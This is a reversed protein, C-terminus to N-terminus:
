RAGRGQRAGSRTASGPPRAPGVGVPGPRAYRGTRATGSARRAGPPRRRRRRAWGPPWAACAGAAGARGPGRSRGPRAGPRRARPRRDARGAAGVRQLREDRLQPAGQTGQAVGQGRAGTAVPEVDGVLLDVGPAELRRGRAPALREGGAVDVAAASASDRRARGQPAPRGEVSGVVLADSRRSASGARPAGTPPARPGSRRRGAAPAVGLQHGLELLQDPLRRQALPEVAEQHEGEVAGTPLRLRQAGVLVGALHEALLEPEVRTRLQLGELGRDEGLVRAQEQRGAGLGPRRPRRVLM